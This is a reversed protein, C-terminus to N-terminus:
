PSTNRLFYFTFLKILFLTPLYFHHLAIQKIDQLGSFRVLPKMAVFYYESANKGLMELGPYSKVILCINIILMAVMQIFVLDKLVSLVGPLCMVAENLVKAILYQKMKLLVYTAM